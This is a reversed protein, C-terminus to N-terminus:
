GVLEFSQSVGFMADGTERIVGRQLLSNVTRPNLDGLGEIGFLTEGDQFM